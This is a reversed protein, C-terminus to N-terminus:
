YISSHKAKIYVVFRISEGLMGLPLWVFQQRPFTLQIVSHRVGGGGERCGKRPGGDCKPVEQFSGTTTNVVTALAMNDEEEEKKEERKDNGRRWRVLTM